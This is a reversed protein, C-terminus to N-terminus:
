DVEFDRPEGSGAHVPKAGTISQWRRCAVDVYQPAIEMAFCRRGTVQAAAIATGSGSFPEYGIEGARLHWTYPDTFLQLPKETPHDNNASKQDLQWVNTANPSPRRAKTPRKLWGYQCPEMQWMFDSRTLVPRSKVWALQQHALLGHKAWTALVVDTRASAYWQYIASDDEIAHDLAVAIFQEYLENGGDVYDDWRLDKTMARNAKSQPHNGGDYNVLYPPDTAMLRAREGGMLTTVDSANTCDGCLLRHEGLLWLDGPQSHAVAPPEPIAEPDGDTRWRRLMKALESEDFGTGELGDLGELVGLLKREDWSALEAARNDVLLIRRAGEDDVDVYIVPLAEIGTAKAARLRHNGALVHGSSRQVILAGYFGNTNISEAITDVDGTRPNDPHETLRDIDVLEYNQDILAM